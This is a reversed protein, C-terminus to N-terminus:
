KFLELFKSFLSSVLESVISFIGKKDEKLPQMNEYEKEINRSKEAKEATKQLPADGKYSDETKEKVEEATLAATNEKKKSSGGGGSAKQSNSVEGKVIIQIDEIDIDLSNLNSDSIKLSSFKINSKGSKLAKFNIKLIEDSCSVGEINGMRTEAYEIVGTLIQSKVYTISGDKSLCGKELSVAELIQSDYSVLFQVAYIEQTPDIVVKLSFDEEPVVKRTEIDAALAINSILLLAMVLIIKKMKVYIEM